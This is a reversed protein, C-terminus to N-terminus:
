MAGNATVYVQEPSFNLCVLLATRHDGTSAGLSSHAVWLANEVRQLHFGGTSGNTYVARVLYLRTPSQCVFTPHGFHEADYPEQPIIPQSSLRQVADELKSAAVEAVSTRPIQVVVKATHMNLAFPNRWKELSAACAASSLVICFLLPAIIKM